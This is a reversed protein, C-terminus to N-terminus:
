KNVNETTRCFFEVYKELRQKYKKWQKDQKLIELLAIKFDEM